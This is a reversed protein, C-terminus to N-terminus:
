IKLGSLELEISSEGVNDEGRSKDIAAMDAERKKKEFAKKRCTDLLVDTFRGLCRFRFLISVYMKFYDKHLGCETKEGGKESWRGGREEGGVGPVKTSHWDGVSKYGQELLINQPVGCM